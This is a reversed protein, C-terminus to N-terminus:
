LIFDAPIRPRHLPGVDGSLGRVTPDAARASAPEDPRDGTLGCAGGRRRGVGRRRRRQQLLSAMPARSPSVIHGRISSACDCTWCRRRPATHNRVAAGACRRTRPPVAHHSHPRPPPRAASPLACEHARGLWQLPSTPLWAARRPAGRRCLPCRSRRPMYGCRCSLPHCCRLLIGRHAAHLRPPVGAVSAWRYRGLYQRRAVWPTTWSCSPTRNPPVQGGVAVAPWTNAENDGGTVVCGPRSRDEEKICNPFSHRTPIM